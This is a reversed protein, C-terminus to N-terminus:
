ALPVTTVRVAFAADPEVNVPQVPPPQEPVPVHVTVTVAAVLGLWSRCGPRLRFRLGFTPSPRLGSPAREDVGEGEAPCFLPPSTLFACYFTHFYGPM